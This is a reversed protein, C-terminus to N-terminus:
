GRNAVMHPIIIVLYIGLIDHNYATIAPPELSANSFSDLDSGSGGGLGGEVTVSAPM